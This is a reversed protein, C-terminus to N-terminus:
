QSAEGDIRTPSWVEEAIRRYRQRSTSATADLGSPIHEPHQRLWDKMTYIQIGGDEKAVVINYRKMADEKAPWLTM